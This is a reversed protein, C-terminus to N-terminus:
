SLSLNLSYLNAMKHQRLTGDGIHSCDISALVVLMRVDARRMLCSIDAQEGVEAVIAPTINVYLCELKFPHLQSPGRRM